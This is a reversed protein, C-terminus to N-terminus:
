QAFFLHYRDLLFNENSIIQYIYINIKLLVCKFCIIVKKGEKESLIERCRPSSLNEVDVNETKFNM